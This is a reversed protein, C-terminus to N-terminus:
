QPCCMARLVLVSSSYFYIFLPGPLPYVGMHTQPTGYIIRTSGTAIKQEYKQRFMNFKFATSPLQQLVFSFKVGVQEKQLRLHKHSLVIMRMHCLVLLNAETEAEDEIM